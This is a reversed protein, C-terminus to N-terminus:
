STKVNIGLFSFMTSIMGFSFPIMEGVEAHNKRRRKRKMGMIGVLIFTVAGELIM